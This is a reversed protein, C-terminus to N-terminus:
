EPQEPVQPEAPAEAFANSVRTVTSAAIERSLFVAGFGLVLCFVVAYVAAGRHIAFDVWRMPWLLNWMQLFFAALLLSVGIWTDARQQALSRVVDLNHGWKTSSLEAITDASLGLNGKALFLAAELTLVLGTIQIFTRLV